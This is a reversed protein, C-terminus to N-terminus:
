AGYYLELHCIDDLGLFAFALALNAENAWAVVMVLIVLVM